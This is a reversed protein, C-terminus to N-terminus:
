SPKPPDAGCELCSLEKLLAIHLESMHYSKGNSNLLSLIHQNENIVVFNGGLVEQLPFNSYVSPLRDM